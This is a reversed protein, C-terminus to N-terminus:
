GPILTVCVLEPVNNLRPVLGGSGLGGSLILTSGDREVLGKTYKPFFGSEPTFLGGVLPLRVQGGHLHGCFTLDLDYYEMSGWLLFAEPQHALLLKMADTDCYARMFRLGPAAWGYTAEGTLLYGSSGGIRLHNGGIEVDVFDRELVVAGAGRLDTALDGGWNLGHREEHNGYGYYVPAIGALDQALRIPVDKRKQSYTLMDGTILILDPKQEAVLRILRANDKGFSRNHLDTLQVLTLPATIKPSAVTYRTVTMTNQSRYLDVALLLALLSAVCLWVIKRPRM